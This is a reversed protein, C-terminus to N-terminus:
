NKQKSTSKVQPGQEKDLEVTLLAAAGQENLSSQSGQWFFYACRHRGTTGHKSPAGSLERGSVTVSYNWRVVYSDGEHFQGTSAEPLEYYEFEDIHWV